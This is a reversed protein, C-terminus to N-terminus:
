TTNPKLEQKEKPNLWLKIGQFWRQNTSKLKDALKALPGIARYYWSGYHRIRLMWHKHQFGMATLIPAFKDAIAGPKNKHYERGTLDLLELYKETTFSLFPQPALDPASALKLDNKLDPANPALPALWATEQIIAKQTDVEKLQHYTLSDEEKHTAQFAELNTKATQAKMRDYGSTYYSDEISSAAKARIPNLDIYVMCSAIAEDDALFQSTFRGDFFAGKLQDAKNCKIAIYQNLERMFWSIDSLRLRIEEVTYKIFLEEIDEPRPKSLKASRMFSTPHIMLWREAVEEITLANALDPRNNLILHYHNCMIAYAYIEIMFVKQLVKLREPVWEKRASYDKGTEEDFGLLYCQRVCRSCIHFTSRIDAQMFDGRATTM